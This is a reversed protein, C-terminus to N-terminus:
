KLLEDIVQKLDYIAKGITPNQSFQPNKIALETLSDKVEDIKKILDMQDM